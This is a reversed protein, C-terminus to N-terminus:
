GAEEAALTRRDLKQMATLPLADVVRIAEPLKHHSLRPEAFARLADLSPPSPPTAPSSSPSASRAWSRTRDPSSPSRPSPPTSPCCPRSRSPTCTTAAESSCRRPGAPWACAAPRTSTASTAPTCGVTGAPRRRHRRPRELLRGDRLPLPPLGRRGRRRARAPGRRGPDVARGATPPSRGHLAGRRRPCRLRHRHRRRRVRHVLLPHLVGAGFRERAEHVLAPPSPAAGVIITQVCDLDRDDFDPERLLLAIQPAVGGVSPVRHQEIQDLVTSARWRDILLQTTRLRLYWALKTM